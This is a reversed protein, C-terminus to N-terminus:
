RGVYPKFAPLDCLGRLYRLVTRAQRKDSAIVPVTAQEGPALITRYDRRIGAHLASVADFRSKGGRRGVILWAEAVPTTPPAGRGTHRAYIALEDPTMPLVHIAKAVVRWASWSEGVMGAADLADLISGGYPQIPAPTRKARAKAQRASGGKAAIRTRRRKSRVQKLSM